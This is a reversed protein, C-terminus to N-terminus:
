SWAKMTEEDFNFVKKKKEKTDQESEDIEDEVVKELPIESNQVPIEAETTNVVTKPVVSDKQEFQQEEVTSAAQEVAEKIGLNERKKALENKLYEQLYQESRESPIIESYNRIGNSMTELEILFRISEALNTQANLWKLTDPKEKSKLRIIVNDGPGKTKQNM